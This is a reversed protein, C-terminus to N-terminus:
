EWNSNNSSESKAAERLYRDEAKEDRKGQRKRSITGWVIEGRRKMLGELIGWHVVIQRRLYELRAQSRNVLM